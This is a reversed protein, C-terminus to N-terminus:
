SSRRSSIEVSVSEAFRLAHPKDVKVIASLVIENTMIVDLIHDTLKELLYFSSNEVEEVIRKKMNKYDLTDSLNDSQVAWTQDFEMTINIIVEQKKHREWTNVGVITQLILNTIRIIANSKKINM